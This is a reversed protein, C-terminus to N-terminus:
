YMISPDHRQKMGLFELKKILQKAPNKVPGSPGFITSKKPWVLRKGINRYWWSQPSLLLCGETNIAIPPLALIKDGFTKVELLHPSCYHPFPYLPPACKHSLSKLPLNHVAESILWTSQQNNITESSNPFPEFVGRQRSKKETLKKAPRKGHHPPTGGKAM